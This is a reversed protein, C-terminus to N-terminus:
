AAATLGRNWEDTVYFPKGPVASVLGFAQLIYAFKYGFYPQGQVFADDGSYFLHSGSFRVPVADAHIGGQHFAAGTTYEYTETQKQPFFDSVSGAPEKEVKPTSVILNDGKDVRAHKNKGNNINDNTTRYQANLAQELTSSIKKFDAFEMLGARSLLETKRSEWISKPILYEDFARYRYSYSLNLAGSKISEAIKEFFMIKYLSVRIKGEVDFISEHEGDEFIDTPADGSLNGNKRRYYDIANLLNKNSTATDFHMHKVIDSVRNQLKVSHSELIDYYDANKFIRTAEKGMASLKEITVSYEPWSAKSFFDKVAAIKQDNSLTEKDVVTQINDLTFLQDILTKSLESMLKQQTHRNEYYTEKHEKTASNLASQCTQTLIDVLTDNLRYYQHIVFAILLLYRNDDKRAIQFVQLKIALQAYYRVIESSLDMHSIISKLNEFLGRICELDEINEKIRSPRTSQNSKKLLTIKYQSNRKDRKEKRFGENVELLEDLFLREQPSMRENISTLLKVEFQKLANTIIEALAFYCLGEIKKERLFDVLSLFMFRPKMQNSCQLLAENILIEKVQENCKTFGLQNRVIEQHREYSTYSYESWDINEIHLDFRKAIFDVDRPYYKAAEFFRNAARFYGLQLIFGIKTMPTRLDEVVEGAWKPLDFFRKREESDFIPPSDYMKAEASSFVKIITPM